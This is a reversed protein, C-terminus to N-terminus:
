EDNEVETLENDKVASILMKDSYSLLDTALVQLAQLEKVDINDRKNKAFGYIFFAKDKVKYAIITRAGGSKGRGSLAVRKKMVHGGLNADVLGQEIEEVAAILLSNPLKEKKAWKTFWKTKFIRM